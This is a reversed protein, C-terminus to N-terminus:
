DRRFIVGALWGVILALVATAVGYFLARQHALTFMFQEFGSKAITFNGDARAVMAGNEFLYVTATYLGIPVNAPIQVNAQFIGAGPMDVSGSEESYLGAQEKLRVFAREFDDASAGAPGLALHDLGIQYKDLEANSAVEGLPRNSHLAYFAPADPMTRASRNIWLGLWREKRRTIVTQPPGRVAVVIVPEENRLPSGPEREIAGFVTVSTGTFNSTIKVDSTSLTAILRDAAAPITGALFFLAAVAAYTRV